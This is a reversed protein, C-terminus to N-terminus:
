ETHCEIRWRHDVRSHHWDLWRACVVFDLMHLHRSVCHLVQMYLYNDTRKVIKWGGADIGSQGPPYSQAVELLDNMAQKATKGKFSFPETWYLEDAGSPKPAATSFCNPPPRAVEETSPCGRLQGADGVGAPVPTSAGYPKGKLGPVLEIGAVRNEFAAAPGAAAVQTVLVGGAVLLARRAPSAPSMDLAPAAECRAAPPARAMAWSAHGSAPIFAAASSALGAAAAVVLASRVM